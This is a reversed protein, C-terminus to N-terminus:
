TLYAHLVHKPDQVYLQMVYVFRNKLLRNLTKVVQTKVFRNKVVQKTNINENHKHIYLHNFFARM